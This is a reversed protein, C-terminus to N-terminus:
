RPPITRRMHSTSTLLWKSITKTSLRCIWSGYIWPARTNRRDRPWLWWHLIELFPPSFLRTELAKGRSLLLSPLLGPFSTTPQPKEITDYEVTFMCLWNNQWTARFIELKWDKKEGGSGGKNIKEDRGIESPSARPVLKITFYILFYCLM